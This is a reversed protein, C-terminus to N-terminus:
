FRQLIIQWNLNAFALTIIHKMAQLTQRLLRKSNTQHVLSIVKKICGQVAEALKNMNGSM